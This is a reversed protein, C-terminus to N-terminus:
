RERPPRVAGGNVPQSPGPGNGQQERAVRERSGYREQEPTAQALKRVAEDREGRYQDREDRATGLEERLERIEANTRLQTNKLADLEAQTAEAQQRQQDREAAIADLGRQLMLVRRELDQQDTATASKERTRDQDPPDSQETTVENQWDNMSRGIEAQNGEATYFPLRRGTERARVAFTSGPAWTNFRVADRTWDAAEAESAFYARMGHRSGDPASSSLTVQCRSNAEAHAFEWRVEETTMGARKAQEAAERRATVGYPDPARGSAQDRLWTYQVHRITQVANARATDRGIKVESAISSGQDGAVAGSKRLLHRQLTPEHVNMSALRHDLDVRRAEVWKESEVATARAERQQTQTMPEFVAEFAPNTRYPRRTAKDLAHVVQGRRETPMQATTLSEEIRLRMADLREADLAADHDTYLPDNERRYRAAAHESRYDAVRKTYWAATVKEAQVQGMIHEALERRQKRTLKGTGDANRLTRLWQGAVNLVDRFTKGTDRAIEDIESM